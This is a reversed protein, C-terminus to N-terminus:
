KGARPGGGYHSRGFLYSRHSRRCTGNAQRLAPPCYGEGQAIINADNESPLHYGARSAMLPLTVLGGMMTIILVKSLGNM